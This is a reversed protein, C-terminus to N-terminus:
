PKHVSRQKRVPRQSTTSGPPARPAQPVELNEKVKALVREVGPPNTTATAAATAVRQTKQFGLPKAAPKQKAGSGSDKGRNFVPLSTAQYPVIPYDSSTAQRLKITYAKQLETIPTPAPPPWQWSPIGLKYM